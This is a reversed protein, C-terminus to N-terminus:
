ATPPRSLRAAAPPDSEGSGPDLAMPEVSPAPRLDIAASRAGAGYTGPLVPWGAVGGSGRQVGGTRRWAIRRTRMDRAM